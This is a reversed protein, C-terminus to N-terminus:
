PLMKERRILRSSLILLVISLAGALGAILLDAIAGLILPFFPLLWFSPLMMVVGIALALPSNAGVRQKQLSSFAVMAVTVLSVVYISPEQLKYGSSVNNLELTHM